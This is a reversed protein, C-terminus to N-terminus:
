SIISTANTVTVIWFLMLLIIQKHKSNYLLCWFLKERQLLPKMLMLNECLYDIV